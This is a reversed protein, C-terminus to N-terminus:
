ERDVAANRQEIEELEATTARIVRATEAEIAENRAGLDTKRKGIDEELDVLLDKKLVAEARQM